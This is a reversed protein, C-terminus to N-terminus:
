GGERVQMSRARSKEGKVKRVTGALEKLRREVETSSPYGPLKHCHHAPELPCCEQSGVHIRISIGRFNGQFPFSDREDIGAFDGSYVEAVRVGLNGWKSFLIPSRMEWAKQTNGCRYPLQPM